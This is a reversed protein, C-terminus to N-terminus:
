QALQDECKGLTRTPHHFFRNPPPLSKSPRPTTKFLASGDAPLYIPTPHAQATSWGVGHIFKSRDEAIRDLAPSCPRSIRPWRNRFVLTINQQEPTPM